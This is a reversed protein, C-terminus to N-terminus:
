LTTVMELRSFSPPIVFGAPLYRAPCSAPRLLRYCRSDSITLDPYILVCTSNM